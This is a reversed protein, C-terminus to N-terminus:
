TAKRGAPIRLLELLRDLQSFDPVILDAGARILRGRKAPNAGYRRVEDSAVGVALAGHKRAERIEVPGDGFVVLGGAAEPGAEALIREMVMRKADKSVDNVSGYVRGEFLEAYGLAGAEAIVDEADTGSALYLKAGARHLADLLAAANKVTFDEVSLERAQLKAVRRSVMENLAGSYIRKYGFEDLIDAAPVCKFERVMAAVQQMQILTQVGTSSDIYRRVRDVVRLYLSEDASDFRPGLIARTMMAEMVEEWGQRLTSITGDHDFIAHSVRLGPPIAGVLEFETGAAMRAQRPDDALEPRYIFDPSAGVAMIEAPTATGTQRLKQVTVTAVYTGLTAAEVPGRGVALAASVGALMSDGAGVTDIPGLVQIAPIEHLGRPDRVVCGRRGRTIFVPKNLKAYLAEAARIAEERLVMEEPQRVIGFLRAAEHDSIKLCAGTYSESYHRSDVIFVKEPHAQIIEVTKRRLFPTHIGQKVQQNVVVIDLSPVLAELRRLLELAAADPLVNFNGFDIRNQEEDEIHPKTYALTAWGQAEALMSDTRVGKAKLLRLIEGGWPDSGVVGFAHVTGAGLDVLNNVVNGAGGLSYRQESVPETPKGTELSRESAAMDVFRYIDLCFDGIVAVRARRIDGLLRELESRTM